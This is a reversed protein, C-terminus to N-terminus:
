DSDRRLANYYSLPEDLYLVGNQGRLLKELFRGDGDYSLPIRENGIMERRIIVQGCDIRGLQANAPAAHRVNGGDHEQSVVVAKVGDNVVDRLRKLLKPHLITDDDLVMIWGDSVEDLMQNKLAQGGVHERDLDFLQHWETQVGRVSAKSISKKLKPLNETRTVATLLHLKMDPPTLSSCVTTDMEGGSGVDANGFVSTKKTQFKHLLSSSSSRIYVKVEDM